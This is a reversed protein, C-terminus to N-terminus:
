RYVPLLEAGQVPVKYYRRSSPWIRYFNNDVKVLVENGMRLEECHHGNKELFEIAAKRRDQVTSGLVVLDIFIAQKRDLFPFLLNIGELYPNAFRNHKWKLFGIYAQRVGSHYEAEWIAHYLPNQGSVELLRNQVLRQEEASFMDHMCGCERFLWLLCATELDVEGPELVVARISEVIRNYENGDSRYERMTVGAQYYNIDCGLLNPIEELIGEATLIDVIQKEILQRQKKKMNKITNIKEKLGSAFKEADVELGEGLLGQLADAAAAGLVAAKKAATDHRSDQGNLAILAFKELISYEKM